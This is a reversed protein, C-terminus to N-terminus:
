ACEYGIFLSFLCSIKTPLHGVAGDKVVSVAYCDHTNLTLCGYKVIFM